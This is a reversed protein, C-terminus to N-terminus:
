WRSRVAASLRRRHLSCSSLRRSATQRNLIVVLVIRRISEPQSSRVIVANFITLSHRSQDSGSADPQADDKTTFLCRPSLTTTTGALTQTADTPAYEGESLRGDLSNFREGMIHTPGATLRGCRVIEIEVGFSGFRWEGLIGRDLFRVPPGYLSEIPGEPGVASRVIRLALSAM